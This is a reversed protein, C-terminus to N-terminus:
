KKQALAWERLMSYDRPAQKHRTVYADFARFNNENTCATGDGYMRQQSDNTVQPAPAPAPQSPADSPMKNTVVLVDGFRKEDGMQTEKGDYTTVQFLPCFHYIGQRQAVSKKPNVETDPSVDTTDIFPPLKRFDHSYVRVAKHELKPSAPYLIIFPEDKSTRGYVYGGIWHLNNGSKLVSTLMAKVQRLDNEPERPLPPQYPRKSMPEVVIVVKGNTSMSMAKLNPAGNVQGLSMVSDAFYVASAVGDVAKGVEYFQGDIEIVAM